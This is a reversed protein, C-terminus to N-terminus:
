MSTAIHVGLFLMCRVRGRGDSRRVFPALGAQYLECEFAHDGGNNNRRGRYEDDVRNGVINAGLKGAEAAFSEPAFDLSFEVAGGIGLM